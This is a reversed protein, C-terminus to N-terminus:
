GQNAAREPRKAQWMAVTQNETVPMTPGHGGRLGKGELFNRMITKELVARIGMLTATLELGAKCGTGM